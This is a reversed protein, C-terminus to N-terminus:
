HLRISVHTAIWIMIDVLKWVALPVLAFAILAIKIFKDIM